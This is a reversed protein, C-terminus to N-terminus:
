INISNNSIIGHQIERSLYNLMTVLLTFRNIKELIHGIDLEMQESVVPNIETEEEVTENVAKDEEIPESM